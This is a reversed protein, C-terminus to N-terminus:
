STEGPVFGTLECYVKLAEADDITSEFMYNLHWDGNNAQFVSAVTWLAQELGIGPKFMYAIGVHESGQPTFHMVRYGDVECGFGIM